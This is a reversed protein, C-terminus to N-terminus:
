QNVVVQPTTKELWANVRQMKAEENKLRKNVAELAAELTEVKKHEKLFENLLMANVQDYRVGHPKGDKDRTVLGPSVKEVDEAVLGLQRAGKPDIKKKYRFAVPKLSFLAQSLNGMSKIDEKFRQSSTLTGLHGDVDVLVQDGGGLATEDIGEIYTTTQGHGIVITDSTDGASAGAGIYINNNGTMVGQGAQYGVAINFNGTTNEALADVGIATNYGGAINHELAIWGDATNNDGTLNSLLAYFGTATNSQGTTNSRLAQYGFGSNAVGTGNANALAQFGVATSWGAPEVGSPGSTFSRLAQYGVATNAGSLTNSKLAEWGVAVNPGVDIGNVNGLAGGTTNNLLAKSGIATNGTAINSFLAFAGNATNDTGSINSFLAGAGTATNDDATNALLAGAGSATNFRGQTDGSLSFLGVATNYTGSTLSFLANQGEATNGGPYGGDPAPSLAQAIQSFALSGVALVTLALRYGIASIEHTSTRLKCNMRKSGKLKIAPKEGAGKMQM